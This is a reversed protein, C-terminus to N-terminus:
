ITWKSASINRNEARVSRIPLSNISAQGPVPVDPGWPTVLSPSGLSSPDNGATSEPSNIADTQMGSMATYSHSTLLGYQSSIGLKCDM